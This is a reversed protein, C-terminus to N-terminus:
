ISKPKNKESLQWYVTAQCVLQAQADRVTVLCEHTGPELDTATTNAQATLTGRAKKTYHCDIRTPIGRLQPHHELLSWMALGATLEVLNAVACAHLSSYPNRLWPWDRMEVTCHHNSTLHTVHPRITSAYPSVWQILWRQLVIGCPVRHLLNLLGHLSRLDYGHLLMTPLLCLLATPLAILTDWVWLCLPTM